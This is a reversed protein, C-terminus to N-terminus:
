WFVCGSNDKMLNGFTCYAIAEGERDEDTALYIKDAAKVDKRLQAVVKKKDATVEYTPEFNNEIDVGLYFPFPFNDVM